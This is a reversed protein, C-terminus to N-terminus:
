ATRGHQHHLLVLAAASLLHPSDNSRDALAAKTGSGTRRQPHDTFARHRRPAQDTVTLM